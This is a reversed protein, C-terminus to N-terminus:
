VLSGASWIDVKVPATGPNVLRVLAPNTAFTLVLLASIPIVTGEDDLYLDVETDLTRNWIVLAKLVPLATGVGIPVEFTDGADGSIALTVQQGPVGVEASVNVPLTMNTLIVDERSSQGVSKKQVTTVLSLIDSM